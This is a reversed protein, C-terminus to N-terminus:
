SDERWGITWPGAKAHGRLGGDHPSICDLLDQLVEDVEASVDRWEGVEGVNLGLAAMAEPLSELTTICFRGGAWPGRHLMKAREGDLGTSPHSSWCIRSLLVHAWSAGNERGHARGLQLADERVYEKASLNCLIRLGAPYAPASSTQPYLAAFRRADGLLHDLFPHAIHEMTIAHHLTQGADTRRWEWWGGFVLRYHSRVYNPLTPRRVDWGEDADEEASDQDSREEIAHSTNDAKMMAETEGWTGIAQEEEITLMGPPLDGPLTESGVCILRCGAWPAWHARTARLVHPKGVSLMHKCTIALAITTHLGLRLLNIADFVM